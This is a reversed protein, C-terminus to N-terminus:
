IELERWLDDLSHFPGSYEEEPSPSVKAYKEATLDFPVANKIAVQHLLLNFLESFNLGLNGLVQEAEEKAKASVRVSLRTTPSKTKM